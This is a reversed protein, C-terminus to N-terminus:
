PNVKAAAAELAALAERLHLEFRRLDPTLVAPMDYFRRSHNLLALAERLGGGLCDHCPEADGLLALLDAASIPLATTPCIATM